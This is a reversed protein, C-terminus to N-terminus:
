QNVKMVFHERINNVRKTNLFTTKKLQQVKESYNRVCQLKDHHKACLLCSVSTVQGSEVVIKLWKKSPDIVAQWQDATAQTPM